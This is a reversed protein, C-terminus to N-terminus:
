PLFHTFKEGLPTERVRGSQFTTWSLIDMPSTINLQKGKREVNLGIGLIDEKYNARSHFCTLESKILELETKLYKKEKYLKTERQHAIVQPNPKKGTHGCIKCCYIKAAMKFNYPGQQLAYD